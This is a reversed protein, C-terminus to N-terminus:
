INRIILNDIARISKAEKYGENLTYVEHEPTLILKKNYVSIDIVDRDKGTLGFDVILNYEDVEAELNRSLIYVDFNRKNMYVDLELIKIKMEIDNIKVDILTDGSVCLNSSNVKRGTMNPNIVSLRTEYVNGTEFEVKIYQKYIEYANVSKKRIGSRQVLKHYEVAFDEDTEASHLTHADLPDFLYVDERNRVADMFFKNTALAYKLGEARTEHTGGNDKLVLFDEIEYHWWHCTIIAMGRRTDGQMMSKVVAQVNQIYPVIGSAEIGKRTLSGKAQVLTIDFALGGSGKTYLGATMLKNMLDFTNNGFTSLVCSAAQYASTMAQTMTPSGFTALHYSIIDYILKTWEINLNYTLGMAVRMYTHQPLELKKTKTYKLCYKANFNQLANYTFLYDRDQKIYSNLEIIDEDSFMKVIERDYTSASVGKKLVEDLNPYVNTKVGYSIAYMKVLELKATIFEFQPNLRTIMSNSTDILNQFMKAVHIKGSKPVKILTANILMDALRQDGDTAFLCVKNLKRRAFPEERGDRKIIIVDRKLDKLKTQNM